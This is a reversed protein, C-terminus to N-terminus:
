KIVHVFPASAAPSLGRIKSGMRSVVLLYHVIDQTFIEGPLLLPVGPPYPIIMEAAIRNEAQDLPIKIVDQKGKEFSAGEQILSPWRLSPIVPEHAFTPVQKDLETLLQCLWNLEDITTGLSFSFLIHEHDALQIYCGRKELWCKLSNGSVPLTTKLMCKFPDQGDSFLVEKIYFLNAIHTRLQQLEKLIDALKSRGQFLIYRRALDLSVMLPYSPSSSQLMKCRRAIDEKNVRKGQMHLMASMTMSTLMKHTSQIAIDAESQM